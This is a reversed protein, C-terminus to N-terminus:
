ALRSISKQHSRGLIEATMVWGLVAHHIVHFLADIRGRLLLDPGDFSTTAVTITSFIRTCAKCTKRHDPPYAPSLSGPSLVIRHIAEQGILFGLGTIGRTSPMGYLAKRRAAAPM